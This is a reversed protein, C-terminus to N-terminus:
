PILQFHYGRMELKNYVAIKMYRFMDKRDSWMGLSTEAILQFKIM